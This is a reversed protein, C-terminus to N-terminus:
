LLQFPLACTFLQKCSLVPSAAEVVYQQADAFDLDVNRGLEKTIDLVTSQGINQLGLGHRGVNWVCADMNDNSVVTLLQQVCEVLKEPNSLQSASPSKLKKSLICVIDKVSCQTICYCVFKTPDDKSVWADGSLETWVNTSAPEQKVKSSTESSISMSHGKGLKTGKGGKAGFTASSLDFIDKKKASEVSGQTTAAIQSSNTSAQTTSSSPTAAPKHGPPLAVIVWFMEEGMTEAVSVNSDLGKGVNGSRLSALLSAGGVPSGSGASNTSKPAACIIGTCPQPLKDDNWVIVTRGSSLISSLDGKRNGVFDKLHAQQARQCLLIYKVFSDVDHVTLSVTKDLGATLYLYGDHIGPGFQDCRLQNLHSLKSEWERLKSPLNQASLARQTHFESFSRQLNHM